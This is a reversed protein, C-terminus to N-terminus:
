ALPFPSPSRRRDVNLTTRGTPRGASVSALQRITRAHRPDERDVDTSGGDARLDEVRVRLLASRRPSLIWALVIRCAHDLENALRDVLGNGSLLVVGDAAGTEAVAQEREVVTSTRQSRDEAPAVGAAGIRGLPECTTEVGLCHVRAGPTM